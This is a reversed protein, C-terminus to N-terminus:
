GRTRTILVILLKWNVICSREITNQLVRKVMHESFLLKLDEYTHIFERDRHSHLIVSETSTSTNPGFM